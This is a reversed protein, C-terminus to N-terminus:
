KTKGKRNRGAGPITDQAETFIVSAKESLYQAANDINHDLMLVASVICDTLDVRMRHAVEHLRDFEGQTVRIAIRRTRRSTNM